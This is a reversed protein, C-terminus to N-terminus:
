WRTEVAQGNCQASAAAADEYSSQRRYWGVIGVASTVPGGFWRANTPVANATNDRPLLAGCGAAYSNGDPCTMSGLDTPLQSAAPNEIHVCPTAGGAWDRFKTHATTLLVALNGGARLSGDSNVVGFDLYAGDLSVNTLDAAQLNAGQLWAGDLTTAQGGQSSDIGFAAGKFNAGVLVAGSFTTGNVKTNGTASGFDVGYLFANSFDTRTLNANALTACSCTSGTVAASGCQKIDVVCSPPPAGLMAGYLSAFKFSVSNLVAGSFNVYQLHAGDFKGAVTIPGLPDNPDDILTAGSFDAGSLEAHTFDAGNLKAGSFDVLKASVNNFKAGALLTNSAGNLGKAGDLRSNQFNARRLSAGSWTTNSLDMGSLDAYDLGANSFDHGPFQAACAQLGSARSLDVLNWSAFFECSMTANAFSTRKRPATCTAGPDITLSPGFVANPTSVDTNSFDACSLTAYSLYTLGNFKAGNFSANTLDALSFDNPLMPDGSDAFTANSFDAGRLDAGDFAVATLTAGSFKANQLKARNFNCAVLTLGSYDNNPGPAPCSPQLAQGAGMVATPAPRLAQGFVLSGAMLLLGALSPLARSRQPKALKM